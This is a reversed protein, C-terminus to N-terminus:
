DAPMWRSGLIKEWRTQGLVMGAAVLSMALWFTRTVPEGLCAWAWGMTSLPILNNFLFVQSTPWHKLANNWIAYTLGGGVFACYSQVLIFSAHWELPTRTIEILAVPVLLVGGRWMTHASVEAGSLRAGFKRCQRGYNAWLFGAILGFVEGILNARGGRLSPWFLVVVGAFALAAAGYRQASRWSMTPPHDWILAWIPSMGLYLAVHSASTFRMAWNLSEIYLALSLGGRWWLERKVKPTLPSMTGLWPTCKFMVMLILGAGLLRTSGLWGPPWSQVLYKTGANNGGWLFVALLLSAIIAGNSKKALM